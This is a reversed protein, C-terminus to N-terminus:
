NPNQYKRNYLRLPKTFIDALKALYTQAHKNLSTHWQPSLPKERAHGYFEINIISMVVTVHGNIRNYNTLMLMVRLSTMCELLVWLMTGTIVFAM